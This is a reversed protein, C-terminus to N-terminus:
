QAVEKDPPPAPCSSKSALVNRSDEQGEIKKGEVGNLRALRGEYARVLAFASIICRRSQELQLLEDDSLARGNWNADNLRRVIDQAACALASAARTTRDQPLAARPTPPPAPCALNWLSIGLKAVVVTVVFIAALWLIFLAINM